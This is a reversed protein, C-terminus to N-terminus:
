HQLDPYNWLYRQAEYDSLDKACRRQRGEDVGKDLYHNRADGSADSYRDKYCKADEDTMGDKAKSSVKDPPATCSYLYVPRGEEWPCLKQSWLLDYGDTCKGKTKHACCDKDTKGDEECKTPDHDIKRGL